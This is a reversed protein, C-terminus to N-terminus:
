QPSIFCCACFRQLQSFMETYHPALSEQVALPLPQKQHSTVGLRPSVNNGELSAPAESVRNGSVM